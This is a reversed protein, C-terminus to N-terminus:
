CLLGFIKSSEATRLVVCFRLTQAAKMLFKGDVLVTLCLYESLCVFFLLHYVQRKVADYLDFEKTTLKQWGTIELVQDQSVDLFGDSLVAKSTNRKIEAACQDVM